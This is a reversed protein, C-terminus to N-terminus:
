QLCRIPTLILFTYLTHYSLNFTLAAEIYLWDCAQIICLSKFHKIGRSINFVFYCIYLYQKGELFYYQLSATM